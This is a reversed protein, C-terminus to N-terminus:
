PIGAVPPAGLWNLYAILGYWPQLSPRMLKLSVDSVPACASKLEPEDKSVTWTRPLMALM